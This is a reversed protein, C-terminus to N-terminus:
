TLKRHAWAKLRAWWPRRLNQQEARLERVEGVLHTLTEQWAANEERARTLDERLGQLEGVLDGLFQGALLGEIRDLRAELKVLDGEM